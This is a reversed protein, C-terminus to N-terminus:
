CRIPLSTACSSAAVARGSSWSRTPVRSSASGSTCGASTRCTATRATARPACRRSAAPACWWARASATATPSRASWISRCGTTPTAATAISGTRGRGVLGLGNTVLLDLCGDGDYDAIAVSEGIGRAGGSAGGADPVLAFTGDGRNDLLLNPANTLYGACVIYLDVDLDNDFDGAGLAHSNIPGPLGLDATRELFGGARNMALRASAGPAFPGFGVRELDTIPATSRALLNVSAGGDGSRMEIRWIRASEDYGVHLGRGREAEPLLGRAQAASVVFPIREPHAGGEGVFVTEPPWWAPSSPYVQLTLEGATRFRLERVVGTGELQALFHDKAPQVFDSSLWGNVAVLDPRLDNDLDVAIADTATEAALGFVATVDRLAGRGLAVIRQPLPRGFVAYLPGDPELHVLLSWESERVPLGSVPEFRDGANRMLLTPADARQAHNLIVDLRGDGDFDLWQPARGRALPLALGFHEARDILQRDANVFLQHPGEGKGLEAGVLQLLDQDGDNDFDAWAAAHRDAAEGIVRETVDRFLGSGENRYLRSNGHGSTWLDPAGDGDFDGWAAGYSLGFYRIGAAATRDEFGIGDQARAGCAAAVLALAAGVGRV